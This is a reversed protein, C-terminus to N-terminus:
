TASGQQYAQLEARIGAQQTQFLSSGRMAIRLLWKNEEAIQTATRLGDLLKLYDPHARADRDQAAVTTIGNLEAEKMLLALKSHKFNELYSRDAEAKAFLKAQDRLEQLRRELKNDTLETMQAM